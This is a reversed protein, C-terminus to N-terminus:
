TFLESQGFYALGLVVVGRKLTVVLTIHRALDSQRVELIVQDPLAFPSKNGTWVIAGIIRELDL